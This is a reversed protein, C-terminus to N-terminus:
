SIGYLVFAKAYNVHTCFVRFVECNISRCHTIAKKTLSSRDLIKDEFTTILFKSPSIENIYNLGVLVHGGGGPVNFCYLPMALGSMNDYLNKMIEIGRNLPVLFHRLGRVPDSQFLYYPKIRMRVLETWLNKLAEESDNIDKLLPCSALCPFGNDVLIDIANRMEDSIENINDIHLVFYVPFRKKYKKLVCLFDDTIRYPNVVLSRTHIRIIQINNVKSIKSLTEDFWEDNLVLPDGGSFIVEEIEPNSKLYEIIRDVDNQNLIAEVDRKMKRRFCYRCYTGCFNSPFVLVKTPYRHVLGKVTMYKDDANVDVFLIEDNESAAEKKSPIFQKRLAANDKSRNILLVTHPTLRMKLYKTAAQVGDVEDQSLNIVKKLEDLNKITNKIQWKWSNWDEEKVSAWYSISKYDM